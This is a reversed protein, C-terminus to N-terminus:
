EAVRANSYVIHEFLEIGEVDASTVLFTKSSGFKVVPVSTEYMYQQLNVWTQVANEKSTDSSISALDNLIREDNVWGAWTSSLYLNM